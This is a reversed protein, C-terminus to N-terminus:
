KNITAKNKSHVVSYRQLSYCRSKARIRAAHQLKIDADEAGLMQLHERGCSAQGCERM